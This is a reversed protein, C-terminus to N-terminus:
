FVSRGIIEITANYIQVNGKVCLNSGRAVSEILYRENKFFVLRISSKGESVTLFAAGSPSISKSKVIGCVAVNEGALGEGIESIRVTASSENIEFAAISAIGFLAAIICVFIMSNNEYKM